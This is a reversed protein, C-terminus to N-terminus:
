ASDDRGGRAESSISTGGSPIGDAGTDCLTCYVICPNYTFLRSNKSKKELTQVAGCGTSGSCVVDRCVRQNVDVAGVLGDMKTEHTRREVILSVSLECLVDAGCSRQLM